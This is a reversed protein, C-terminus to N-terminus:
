TLEHDLSLRFEIPGPRNLRYGYKIIEAPLEAIPEGGGIPVTLLKTEVTVASGSLRGPNAHRRRRGLHFSRERLHQRDGLLRQVSPAVARPAHRDGPPGSHRRLDSGRLRNLAGSGGHAYWIRCCVAGPPLIAHRCGLYGHRGPR